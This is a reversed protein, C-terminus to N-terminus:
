TYFFNHKFQKVKKFKLIKEQRTERSVILDINNTIRM